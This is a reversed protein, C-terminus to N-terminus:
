QFSPVEVIKFINRGRIAIVKLVAAVQTTKIVSDDDMFRKWLRLDKWRTMKIYFRPSNPRGLMQICPVSCPLINFAQSFWRDPLMRVNLLGNHTSWFVVWVWGHRCSYSGCSWSSCPSPLSKPNLCLDFFLSIRLKPYTKHTNRKEELPRIQINEVVSTVRAKFFPFLFVLSAVMIEKDIVM